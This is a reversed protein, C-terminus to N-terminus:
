SWPSRRTFSRYRWSFCRLPARGRGGGRRRKRPCLGFLAPKGCAHWLRWSCFFRSCAVCLNASAALLLPSYMTPQSVGFLVFRSATLKQVCTTQGQGQIWQKGTSEPRFLAPTSTKTVKSSPEKAGRFLRFHTVFPGCFLLATPTSHQLSPRCAVTPNSANKVQWAPPAVSYFTSQPVRSARVPPECVAM